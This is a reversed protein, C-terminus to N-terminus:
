AGSWAQAQDGARRCVEAFILRSALRAFRRSQPRKLAAKVEGGDEMGTQRAYRAERANDRGISLNLSTNSKQNLWLHLRNANHHAIAALKQLGQIKPTACLKPRIAARKLKDMRCATGNIFRRVRRRIWAAAATRDNATQSNM